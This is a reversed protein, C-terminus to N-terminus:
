LAKVIKFIMRPFAVSMYCNMTLHEFMRLLLYCLTNVCSTQFYSQCENIKHIDFSADNM